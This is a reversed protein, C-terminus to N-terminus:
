LGEKGATTVMSLWRWDMWASTAALESALNLFNTPVHRFVNGMKSLQRYLGLALRM